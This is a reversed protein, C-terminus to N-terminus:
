AQTLWRLYREIEGMHATRAGSLLDELTRNVAESPADPLLGIADAVQEKGPPDSDQGWRHFERHETLRRLSRAQEISLNTAGEFMGVDAIGAAHTESWSVGAPTLIWDDAATGNVFQGNRSKKADALADRARVESPYEPHDRWCFRRPALEFCKLAIAQTDKRGTGGGVLYLALTALQANSM